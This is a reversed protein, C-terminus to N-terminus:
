NDNPKERVCFKVDVGYILYSDYLDTVMPIAHKAQHDKHLARKIDLMIDQSPLEITICTRPLDKASKCLAAERMDKIFAVLNDLM